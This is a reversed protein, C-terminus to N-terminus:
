QQIDVFVNCSINSAPRCQSEFKRPQFSIDIGLETNQYPRHRMQAVNCHLIACWRSGDCQLPAEIASDLNSSPYLVINLSVSEYSHEMYTRQQCDGSLVLM